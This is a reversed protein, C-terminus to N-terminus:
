LHEFRAVVAANIELMQNWTTTVSGILPDESDTQWSSSFLLGDPDRRLHLNGFISNRVLLSYCGKYGWVQYVVCGNIRVPMLGGPPSTLDVTIGLEAHRDAQHTLERLENGLRTGFFILTFGDNDATMERLHHLLEDVSRVNETRQPPLHSLIRYVDHLLYNKVEQLGTLEGYVNSNIGRAIINKPMIGCVSRAEWATDRCEVSNFSFRSLLADQALMDPLGHTLTLDTNRLRETDVEAHILEDQMSQSFAQIYTDLTTNFATIKERFDKEPMLYGDSPTDEHRKMGHLRSIIQQKTYYTFTNEDLADQVRRSVTLPGVSLYFAIDAYSGYINSVDEYTGMYIRGAITETDSFSSFKRILETLMGYWGDERGNNRHELRIISDIIDTASKFSFTLRDHAGTPYVLDSNLLRRVVDKLLVNKKQRIHSLIYGATLLRVDAHANYFVTALTRNDSYEHGRLVAQWDSSDPDMTLLAPTFLFSHWRYQEFHEEFNNRGYWLLLMDSSHESAFRDDKMVATIVTQATHFLHALLCNHDSDSQEGARNQLRRWMYWSEWEGIFNKVLERHRLEQAVSLNEGYGTKWDTLAHWVHFLSEVYQEFDSLLWSDSGRYVSFPITMVHRFYEATTELSKVTTQSFAYFEQHFSQSFTLMFGADGCDDIYNGDAYRFSKKLTTYTEVLRDAASIFSSINRDELADYAEGYFDRTIYRYEKWNKQPGRIFCRRFLFAWGRPFIVDSSAILTITDQKRGLSPLLILEGKSNKVPRLFRLLFSLPRIRVDTVEKGEGVYYPLLQMNEEGSVYWRLIEIGKIHNKDLYNGPHRLWANILSCLIFNEVIESQFYKLMLRDRKKDDLINLSSIFFWISLGLNFLMWILATIAFATTRYKDGASSFLGGIVIFAALSLGSLGAFMYGSHLQYASQIHIRSSKKQFLVSILGVVLPFVIGIITVQAGLLNSMWAPLVTVGKLYTVAFSHFVPRFYEAAIVAGAAAAWLFLMARLYHTSCYVQAKEPLSWRHRKYVANNKLNQKLEARVKASLLTLFKGSM